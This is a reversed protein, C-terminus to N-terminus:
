CEVYTRVSVDIRLCLDGMYGEVSWQPLHQQRASILAPVACSPITNVLVVHDRWHPHKCVVVVVVVQNLATDIEYRIWIYNAM